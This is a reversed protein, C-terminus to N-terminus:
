QKHQLWIIRVQISFKRWTVPLMCVMFVEDDGVELDNSEPSGAFIFCVCTDHVKCLHFEWIILHEHARSLYGTLFHHLCISIIWDLFTITSPNWHIYIVKRWLLALIRWVSYQYLYSYTHSLYIYMCTCACVCVCVCLCLPLNVKWGAWIGTKEM